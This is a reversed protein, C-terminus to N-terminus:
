ALLSLNVSPTVGGLPRGCDRGDTAIAAWFVSTHARTQTTTANFSLSLYNHYQEMMSTPMVMLNPLEEVMSYM